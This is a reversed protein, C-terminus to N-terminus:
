NMHLLSCSQVVEFIDLVVEKIKIIALKCIQPIIDITFILINKFDAGDIVGSVYSHGTRSHKTQSKTNKTVNLLMLMLHVLFKLPNIQLVQSFVDLEM